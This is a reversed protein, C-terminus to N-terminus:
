WLKRYSRLDGQLDEDKVICRGGYEAHSKAKVQMKRTDVRAGVSEIWSVSVPCDPYRLCLIKESASKVSLSM